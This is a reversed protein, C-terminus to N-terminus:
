SRLEGEDGSTSRACDEQLRRKGSLVNHDTGWSQLSILIRYIYNTKVDDGSEVNIKQLLSLM